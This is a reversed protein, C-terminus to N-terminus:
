CRMLGPVDQLTEAYLQADPHYRRVLIAPIGLALAGAVDATKNDGVMWVEHLDPYAELVIQFAQTNPKEYGIEASIFIHTFYQMLGVHCVIDRLEPVHNSLMFHHWGQASLAQLVPVVDEYVYWRDLKLYTARFQSALYQSQTVDFGVGIYARVFLPEVTQWWADASKLHTHSTNPDLWPFGSQMYPRLQNKTIGCGPMEAQLVDWLTTTWAGGNQDSGNRYGLTGDFDWIVARM